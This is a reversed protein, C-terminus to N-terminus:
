LMVGIGFLFPGTKKKVMPKEPGTRVRSVRLQIEGCRPFHAAKKSPVM